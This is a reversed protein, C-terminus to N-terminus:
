GCEPLFGLREQIQQHRIGKLLRWGKFSQHAIQMSSKGSADVDLMPQNILHKGLLLNHLHQPHPTMALLEGTDVIVMEFEIGSDRGPLHLKVGVFLM